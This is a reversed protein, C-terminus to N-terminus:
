HRGPLRGRKRILEKETCKEPLHLHESRMGVETCAKFKQKIYSASAPDNGVQVIVLKPDLKAVEPKLRALLADAAERGSLITATMLADYRYREKKFIVM